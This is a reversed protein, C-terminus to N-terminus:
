FDGQSRFNEAFTFFAKTGTYGAAMNEPLSGDKINEICADFSEYTVVDQNSTFVFEKNRLYQTRRTADPLINWQGENANNLCPCNRTCM